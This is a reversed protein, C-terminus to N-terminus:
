VGMVQRQGETLEDPKVFCKKDIVEGYCVGCEPMVAMCTIGDDGPHYYNRVEVLGSQRANQARGKAVVFVTLGSLAVVIGIIILKNRM